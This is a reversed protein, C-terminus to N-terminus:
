RSLGVEPVIVNVQRVLNFKKRICEMKERSLGCVPRVMLETPTYLLEEMWGDEYCNVANEKPIENNLLKLATECFTNEEKCSCRGRGVSMDSMSTELIYKKKAPTCACNCLDVFAQAEASIRKSQPYPPCAGM